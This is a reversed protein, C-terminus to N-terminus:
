IGHRNKLSYVFVPTPHDPVPYTGILDYKPLITQIATLVERIASPKGARFFTEELSLDQPTDPHIVMVTPPEASLKKADLHAIYDPCTDVWHNLSRTVPMRESLAYFIPMNPYVFIRDTPKSHAVIKETVSEFFDATYPSLLFGSLAELKPQVRSTAIPPENWRGWSQPFAYKRWTVSVIVFLCIIIVVVRYCAAIPRGNAKQLSNALLYSLGPFIMVEFAPWSISLSYASGFGVAALLAHNPDIPKRLLLLRAIFVVYMLFGGLLTVYCLILTALRSGNPPLGKIRSGVVIAVIALVAALWYWESVQVPEKKRGSWHILNWVALILVAAAAAFAYSLMKFTLHIPRFLSLVLGGKSSPGKAFVQEWFVEFLGDDLLWFFTFAFIACTGIALGAIIPLAGKTERRNWFVLSLTGIVVALCIIGVSQKVACAFGLFIGSILALALRHGHRKAYCAAALVWTGLLCADVSIHNYFFPYDAIDGSAFVFAAVVVFSSFAPRAIRCLWFYLGVASVLRLLAGFAWLVILRDGGITTLARILWISGPPSSVYFDRFPLFNFRSSIACFLEGGFTPSLYRNWWLSLFFATTALVAFAGLWEELNVRLSPPLIETGNQHKYGNLGIIM